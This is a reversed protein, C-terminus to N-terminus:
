ESSQVVHVPVTAQRIVRETVSGLLLRDLGSRGHTGMVILDLDYEAVYDLITRPAFGRDVETVTTLGRESANEALTSTLEEGAEERAAAMEDPLSSSELGALTDVSAQYSLEVVHLIHVTANCLTALEFAQEAAQTATSSGDTPVLIAEYM